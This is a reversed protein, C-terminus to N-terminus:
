TTKGSSHSSNQKSNQKPSNHNSSHQKSYHQKSYHQKSSYQAFLQELSNQDLSSRSGLLSKRGQLPLRPHGCRLRGKDKRRMEHSLTGCVTETWVGQMISAKPGVVRWFRATQVTGMSYNIPTSFNVPQSDGEAGILRLALGLIIAGQKKAMKAEQPTGEKNPYLIPKILVYM